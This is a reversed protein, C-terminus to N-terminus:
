EAGGRFSRSWAMLRGCKEEPWTGQPPATHGEAPLRPAGRLSAFPPSSRTLNGFCLMDLTLSATTWHLTTPDSTGTGRSSGTSSAQHNAITRSKPQIHTTRTQTQTHKHKHTHTHTHEDTHTHRHTHTQTHTHTHTHTHAHMYTYAHTNVDIYQISRTPSSVMYSGGELIPPEYAELYQCV